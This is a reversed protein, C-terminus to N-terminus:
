MQAAKPGASAIETQNEGLLTGKELQVNKLAIAYEVRSLFYRSQADVVRRQADLLQELNIPLGAQRNAEMSEFADSAALYRNLHTEIQRSAREVEAVTLGLDNMIQREQEHLIIQERRLVQQANQVAAHAQRFGIPLSLEFGAEWEQFDGTGLDNYASPDGILHKDLGRFRYRGLIDLQPLLYNKAALLELRRREILLRQKRLEPRRQIAEIAIGEWDYVVKAEMPEDSPRLIREDRLPLGLMLRLRREAAIIGGVGAFVGGEAASGSQTRQTSKGAIADQLDAQFRFYQERALAEATGAQRNSSKQAEYNRWTERSREVALRKTDYDRYSFYLDWYANEIDSVFKRLSEEFEIENIDSNVKAILVGGYVGPQSNPGAIRNFTTGGGRLLSQRLEGEIQTQWSSPVLNGTANSADYDTVNRLALQTGAATRKSLQTIYDHRDQVFINSGGGFFRNNFRRDNKQFTALVDLQTDFASLAAEM